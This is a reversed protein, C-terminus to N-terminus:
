QCVATMLQRGCVKSKDARGRYARTHGACLHKIHPPGIVVGIWPCNGPHLVFPLVSQAMSIDLHAAAASPAVCGLAHLDAACAACAAAVLIIPAGEGRDARGV